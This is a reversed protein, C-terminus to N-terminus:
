EKGYARLKAVVTDLDSFFSEVGIRLRAIHSEDRKVTRRFLPLGPWFVAIDWWKRECVWMCGQVQDKHESPIDGGELLRHILLDPQQSKFEAGGDNRILADPSCGIIRGKILGDNTVFGVRTIENGSIVSYASAAEPEIQNGRDMDANKYGEPIPNGTIIESALNYLYRTRVPMM